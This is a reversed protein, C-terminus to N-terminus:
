RGHEPGPRVGAEGSAKRATAAGIAHRVIADAEDPHHDLWTTMHGRVVNEVYPRVEPNALRGRTCGEYEPHRHKVSIIATLGERIDDASLEDCEPLLQRTRAHTTILTALASLFGQEHTGGEPTSHTNGFSHVRDQSSASWQLAIDVSLTKEENEDGFGIVGPHLLDDEGSRLHAMFDRVGGDYLTRAAEAEGPGGTREPREDTLSMTLGEVLFALEQFRRSLLTFTYQTTSFVDPDAWFTITTGHETTEEHQTLPAVPVGREYEQSWRFGDRRIEVTLRSSLATVIPLEVGSRSGTVPYGAASPRTGTRVETLVTEVAPKGTSAEVAVPIGRGNDAVRVGGGDSTITVDVTDAHGALVEDVAFDVATYVLEQLGREGTSGVYMGPRKRVAEVGHLVHIHSAEYSTVNADASQDPNGSETM